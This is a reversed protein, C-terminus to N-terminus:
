VVSKRDVVDDLGLAQYLGDDNNQKADFQYGIGDTNIPGPTPPTPMQAAGQCYLDKNGDANCDVSNLGVVRVNGKPWLQVSGLAPAMNKVKVCQSARGEPPGVPWLKYQEGNPMTATRPGLFDYYAAKSGAIGSLTLNQMIVNAICQTAFESYLKKRQPQAWDNADVNQFIM